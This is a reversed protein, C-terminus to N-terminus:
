TSQEEGQGRSSYGSEGVARTSSPHDGESTGGSSTTPTNSYNKPVKGHLIIRKVHCVPYPGKLIGRRLWCVLPLDKKVGYELCAGLDGAMEFIFWCDPDSHPVLPNKIMEESAKSNVPRGMIFCEPTSHVYCQALHSHLDLYFDEDPMAKYRELSLFIANKRFPDTLSPINRKMAENIQM